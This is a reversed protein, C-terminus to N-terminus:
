APAPNLERAYRRGSLGYGLREYFAHAGARHAATTVVLRSAGQTRAWREAEAVLARGVDRGREAEDVVLVTLQASPEARHLSDHCHATALGCVLGDREAVIVTTRGDGALRQLREAVAGDAAPYGLQGLLRALPAADVARPARLLLTSPM